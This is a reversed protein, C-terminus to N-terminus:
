TPLLKFYLKEKVEEELGEFWIRVFSRKKKPNLNRTLPKLLKPKLCWHSLWFSLIHFWLLILFTLKKKIGFKKLGFLHKLDKFSEEIEFRTRYVKLVENRKSKFDSTLIYWPEVNERKEQGKKRKPIDSTILRLKKGYLYVKTDLTKKGIKLAPLRKPNGNGDIWLLSKGKKIRLYFIIKELLMFKLLIPILFGRDFVLKPFFGLTTKLAKLKELIFLNQSGPTLIPYRLCGAWIPLARGNQTQVAFALTEFGCFSSFDINILSKRAVLGSM